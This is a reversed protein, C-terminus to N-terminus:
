DKVFKFYSSGNSDSLELIYLGLELNCLNLDFECMDRNKKWIGAYIIKGSIDYVKYDINESSLSRVQVRMNDKVPNPFILVDSVSNLSSVGASSGSYNITFGQYANKYDTRFEVLMESRNVFFALPLNTGSFHYMITDPTPYTDWFIVEDVNNETQLDAFTFNIGTSGSPKVLWKCQTNNNYRKLGSGDNFSGNASTLLKMNSCYVPLQSQYYIRFGDSVSDNDSVFRVFVQKSNVQLVNPLTDSCYMAVLPSQVSNGKYVFLSDHGSQLNIQDFTLKIYQVSDVEPSILWSCDANNKYPFAPGSGDDFSGSITKLTDNVCNYPYVNNVTDPFINTIMEQGYNFGAGSGPTLNNTFFYGDYSGGWGWNFHYYNGQYGDCVFAHGNINVTSPSEWGAYYLPMKRDLNYVLLSDWNLTTSDRFVYQTQPNYRFYTRLVFAASHNYMGSGNPGYNMDVGVGAHHLLLAGAPNYNLFEDSIENWKYWTNEFDADITGYVPHNYSYTGSGHLPFKWYYMLQGMTTAVCGTLAHGDPGATDAPCMQNYYKGQNWKSRVLPAVSKTGSLKSISNSLLQNWEDVVGPVPLINQERIVRIQYEYRNMWSQVPAVVTNSFFTGEFSYGLVPKVRKDAALLIFGGRDINVAYITNNALLQVRNVKIQGTSLDDSSQQIYFNRAAIAAENETVNQPFASAFLLIGSLVFVLRKM